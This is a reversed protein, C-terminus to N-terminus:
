IRLAQRFSKANKKEFFLFYVPILKTSSYSGHKNYNYICISSNILSEKEYNPTLFLPNKSLHNMITPKSEESLKNVAQDDISLPKSRPRTTASSKGNYNNNDVSEESSSLSSSSLSDFKLNILIKEKSSNEGYICNFKNNSEFNEVNLLM